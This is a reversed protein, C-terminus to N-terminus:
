RRSVAKGALVAVIAVAVGVLMIPLYGVIARTADSMGYIRPWSVVVDAGTDRVATVTVNVDGDGFSFTETTGNRIVATQSELTQTDEVTITANEPSSPRVREDTVDLRDSVSVTVDEEIRNVSDYTEGPANAAIPLVFAIALVLLVAGIVTETRM